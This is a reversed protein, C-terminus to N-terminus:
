AAGVLPAAAAAALALVDGVLILAPGGGTDPAAGAATEALTSRALRADTRGANSVIALPTAPARGSAILRRAIEPAARSGMYIALTAEPDSAAAWDMAIRGDQLTATTFVVRRALGRHTLPAGFQAAAACAATVGPVIECDIGQARLAAQEEGVRGFVSPDGGKLRVVRLGRRALRAMLRNITEQKMSARGARKGTQIKLCAQPALALVEEGVLADYLLAEAGEIARVARLTLLDAPGPGAGVLRVPPIAEPRM